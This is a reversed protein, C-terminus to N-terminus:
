TNRGRVMALRRDSRAPSPGAGHIQMRYIERMVRAREAYARRNMERQGLACTWLLVVACAIAALGQGTIKAIPV